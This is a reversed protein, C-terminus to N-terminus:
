MVMYFTIVVVTGVFMFLAYHRIQGTQTHRSIEGSMDIAAATGNVTGDIVSQDVGRWLFRAMGELPRILLYAYLEDFYWKGQSLKTLPALSRSFIGPLASLSTYFLLGLVVGLIGIWSHALAQLISEGHGHVVSPVVPQLYGQLSYAGHGIHGSLALGSVVALAALVVLPLTM